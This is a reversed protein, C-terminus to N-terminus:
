VETQCLGFGFVWVGSTEAWPRLKESGMLGEGSPTTFRLVGGFGIRILAKADRM